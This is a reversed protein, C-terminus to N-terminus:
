QASEYIVSHVRHAPRPVINPGMYVALSVCAPLLNAKTWSRRSADRGEPRFKRIDLAPSRSAVRDSSTSLPFSNYTPIYRFSTKRTQIYLGGCSVNLAHLSALGEHMLKMGSRLDPRLTRLVVKLSCIYTSATRQAIFGIQLGTFIVRVDNGGDYM